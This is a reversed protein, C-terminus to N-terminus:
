FLTSFGALWAGGIVILLAAAADGVRDVSWVPEPERPIYVRRIM